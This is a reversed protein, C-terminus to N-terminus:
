GAGGHSAVARPHAPANTSCLIAPADPEADYIRDDDAFECHRVMTYGDGIITGGCRPCTDFARVMAPVTGPARTPPTTSEITTM